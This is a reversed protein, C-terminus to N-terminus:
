GAHGAGKAARIADIGDQLGDAACFGDHDETANAKDRLAALMVAAREMGEAIWHAKAQEDPARTNWANRAEAETAYYETSCHCTQCYVGWIDSRRQFVAVGGRDTTHLCEAPCPKLESAQM